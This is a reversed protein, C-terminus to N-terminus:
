FIHDIKKTDAMKSWMEKSLSKGLDYKLFLLKWGLKRHELEKLLFVCKCCYLLIVFRAVKLFIVNYSFDGPRKKVM